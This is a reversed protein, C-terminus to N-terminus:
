IAGGSEIKKQIEAIEELTEKERYKMFAFIALACFGASVPGTLQVGILNSKERDLVKNGAADTKEVKKVGGGVLLLSSFFLGAITQGFKQMLTRAAYFMGEKRNGTKLADLEAIDALIANPLIGLIAAPIGAIIVILAAQVFPSFPVAESGLFYVGIFVSLFIFFGIIVLNKKGIKRAFFNVLPYCLFSSLLMVPMLESTLTEPQNLLVTVYYSMGTMLVTLALFYNFDSIAFYIFDRNRFTMKLADWFPVNSPVSECYVKEKIAFVPFYMCLCAFACLLGIAWQFAQYKELHPYNVNINQAFKPVQAAIGIGVAYTISIYTSINLRETPTHGLEPIMAFFPTVYVTLFLFFFLLSVSMWVINATTVAKDPTVFVLWCSVAAPLGGVALFPIRRGWKSEWRDTLNAITPDTVADWLRGLGLILGITAIGLFAEKVILEPLNADGPPLYFYVLQFGIINILISWGLQGIAYAIQKSLPLSPKSM